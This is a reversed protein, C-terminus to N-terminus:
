NKWVRNKDSCLTTITDNKIQNMLVSLYSDELAERMPYIENGTKIYNMMGFLIDTIAAEDETLNFDEYPNKYCINQACAINKENLYYLKDNIIEGRTGRVNLYRNRIESRYQDSMFDYFAVKGSEYEMILHKEEKNVIEGDTLTEYRTKTNTVPLMFTKGSITVDELGVQLMQRIISAAHYDHMASITISVPTGIMGSEIIAIIKRNLPSLFYQEAVQLKAGNLCMDWLQELFKQELAAPTESLVPIGYSLWHMCTECMNLKSVASVIFDPKQALVDAEDCTTYIHYDGALKDAKEKTRCLLACMEFDNPMAKAIRVYFLSRWGSGIIAFRIMLPEGKNSM